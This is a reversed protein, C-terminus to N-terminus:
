RRQHKPYRRQLEQKVRPYHERWFGALDQTIQGPLQTSPHHILIAPSRSTLIAFVPIRTRHNYASCLQGIIAFGDQITHGPATFRNLNLTVALRDSL